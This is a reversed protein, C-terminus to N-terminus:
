AAAPRSERHIWGLLLGTIGFQILHFAAQILLFPTMGNVLTKAAAALTSVTFMFLGMLLCFKLGSALPAKAELWRPFLWALIAGQIWMSLFGLPIIPDARNYIGFAHYADKFLVFHWLPGLIMTLLAYAFLSLFFRLNM